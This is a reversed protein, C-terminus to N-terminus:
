RKECLSVKECRAHFSRLPSRPIPPRLRGASEEALHHMRYWHTTDRCPASAALMPNYHAQEYRVHVCDRFVAAPRPNRPRTTTTGMRLVWGPSGPKDGHEDDAMNDAEVEGNDRLSPPKSSTWAIAQQAGESVDSPPAPSTRPCGLNKASCVRARALRIREASGPWCRGPGLGGSGNV